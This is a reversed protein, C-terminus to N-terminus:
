SLSVVSIIYKLDFVINQKNKITSSMFVLCKQETLSSIAASTMKTIVLLVTFYKNLIKQFCVDKLKLIEESIGKFLDQIMMSFFATARVLNISWIITLPYLYFIKLM